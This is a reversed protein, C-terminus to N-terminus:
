GTHCGVRVLLLKGFPENLVSLVGAIQRQHATGSLCHLDRDLKLPVVLGRKNLAASALRIKPSLLDFYVEQLCQGLVM